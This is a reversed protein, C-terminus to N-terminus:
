IDHGFTVFCKTVLGAGVCSYGKQHGWSEMTTVAEGWHEV